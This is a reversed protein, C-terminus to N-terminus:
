QADSFGPVALPSTPEPATGAAKEAASLDAVGRYWIASWGAAKAAAVNQESDDILCIESAPPDFQKEVRGFFARDPKAVGLECSVFVYDFEEALEGAGM